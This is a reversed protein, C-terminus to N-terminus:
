QSYPKQLLRPLNDHIYVKNNDSNINVLTTSIVGCSVQAHIVHKDSGVLCDSFSITKSSENVYELTAEHRVITM